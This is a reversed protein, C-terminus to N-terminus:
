GRVKVRDVEGMFEDRAKSYAQSAAHKNKRAVESVAECRKLAAWTDRMIEQLGQAKEWNTSFQGGCVDCECDDPHPAPIKEAKPDTM